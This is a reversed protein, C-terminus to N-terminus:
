LGELRVREQSPEMLGQGMTRGTDPLSFPLLPDGTPDEDRDDAEVLRPAAGRRSWHLSGVKLLAEVVDPDFQTGRCRQIEFLAEALPRADRHVRPHTITDFADAVAIIRAGIPIEDGRLGWPYGRGDFHEHVYRVIDAVDALYPCSRLTDAILGPRRRVVAREVESLSTRKSLIEDPTALRGLDHLRAAREIAELDPDRVDLAVAINVALQAVRQGHDYAPRDEATLSELLDDLDRASTVSAAAIRQNLDAVRDLLERELQAFRRLAGVQRRHADIGRRLSERLNESSFPKVLYDVVGHHLSFLAADIDIAGTAMVIASAPHEARLREVLWLGDHGPMTIDAVVVAPPDASAAKLADEATGAERVHYGLSEAWRRMMSRMGPEDDVILVSCM